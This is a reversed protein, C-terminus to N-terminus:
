CESYGCSVCKKCGEEYRMTNNGCQTCLNGTVSYPALMMTPNLGPLHGGGNNMGHGNGGNGGNGFSQEDAGGDPEPSAEPEARNALSALHLDIARAMADPLSRVRDAGFGISTSGGIARLQRAVEEARQNQSIPSDIRLHLSILRGMAEALAAVDSGAKGINVFVELLGDEDSNLTVNVKGEPARVQRTYGQIVEPREKIGGYYRRRREEVEARAQVEAQAVAAAEPQKDKVGVNLVQEGKSGDRFVTIGLCGLDWALLYANRVDDYTASNPLNITNHSVVGNVTYEHADEVEIDYLPLIGVDEVATVRYVPVSDSWGIRLATRNDCNVAGRQRISNFASYFPHSSPLKTESLVEQHVLVQYTAFHPPANKHPEICNILEQLENSVVVKYSINGTAAVKGRHMRVLPLGFSRAIEAVGYALQQSMGAYVYLGFLPHHYGDLSVGRLFALKEEANGVQIQPPVRKSYAGEGILSRVWRCLIRSNLVLVHVNPNRQDVVDRPTMGFLSEALTTFESIVLEDATTLGVAGTIETIHGDAAIMGLFQALEPTLREPLTLRKANTRYEDPEPLRAGGEGHSAIFRGVVLDGVRLEAMRRWGNPTYVQHSETSGTLEAGNDLRIRTTPKEGAFYHSLIRHGGAKIGKEAINVFTDPEVVDSFDEIAIL